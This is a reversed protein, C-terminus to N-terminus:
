NKAKRIKNLKKYKLTENGTAGILFVETKITANDGKIEPTVKVAPGGFYDLDFDDKLYSTLNVRWTSYGGDHHGIREGNLYLDASSNAGEFQIYITKNSPLDSKFLSKKYYCTKRLYDNGGDQGDTGNWTHPLNVPEWTGQEPSSIQIDDKTFYWNNNWNLTSSM